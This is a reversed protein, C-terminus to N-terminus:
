TCIYIYTYMYPMIMRLEVKQYACFTSSFFLLTDFLKACHKPKKWKLATKCSTSRITLKQGPLSAAPLQFSVLAPLARAQWMCVSLCAYIYIYISMGQIYVHAICLQTPVCTYRYVLITMRLQICLHVHPGQLRDTLRLTKPPWYPGGAAVAM